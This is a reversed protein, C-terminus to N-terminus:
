AYRMWRLLEKFTPKKGYMLIGVRYIRGALWVMLVTFGITLVYSLAIQWAPPTRVVIRLVMLLPTFPPIFSAVVALTGDPDNIVPLALVAPLAFLFGLSSAAQQAEQLNNFAAGLAGYFTAYLFFGLAFFAITHLVVGLSVTPIGGAPAWAMSAVVAPATLLAATGMWIAMQTMGVGCIGLFKGMMLEFPRVTSVLVEVVRSSKEELVGNLVQAGYMFMAMYLVFFLFYALMVGAMGSEGRSGEASVKVTDLDVGRALKTVQDADFGAQEFRVRRVVESLDRELIEQTVFNSVSKAHYEVKADGKGAEGAEAAAVTGHELVAPSIWMWAHIDGDLVRRDLEARQAAADAALAENSVVFTAAKGDSKRQTLKEALAAGVRTTEDVVVLRHESGAKSLILSPLVFLAAMVLPLALTGIWFGKTKIRTLYERRTLILINELQM